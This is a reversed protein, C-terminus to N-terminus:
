FLFFLIFYIIFNACVFFLVDFYINRIKHLHIRHILICNKTNNGNARLNHQFSSFKKHISNVNTRTHANFMCSNSNWFFLSFSSSFFFYYTHHMNPRLSYLNLQLWVTGVLCVFLCWIVYAVFSCSTEKRRKLCLLFLCVCM